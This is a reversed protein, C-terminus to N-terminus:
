TMSDEFGREKASQKLYERMNKINRGTTSPTEGLIAAVEITTPTMKIRHARKKLSEMKGKLKSMRLEIEDRKKKEETIKLKMEQYKLDIYYNRKRQVIINKKEQKPRILELANLLKKELELKDMDLYNAYSQIDKLPVSDIHYLLYALLSKRHRKESTGVQPIMEGTNVNYSEDPQSALLAEYNGTSIWYAEEKKEKENKVKHYKMTHWELCVRLYREFACDYDKYNKLLCKIRSIFTLYFDSALEEGISRRKLGWQYIFISIKRYLYEWGEGTEQYDRVEKSLETKYM